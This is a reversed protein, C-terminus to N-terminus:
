LIRHKLMKFGMAVSWVSAALYALAEPIAVGRWEFMWVATSFVGLLVTLLGSKMESAELLLAVGYILLYISLLTFFIVSVYFHLEGATEPFVGIASLAFGDLLVILMGVRSLRGRLVAGLGTSFVATLFGGVILGMNFLVAVDGHVGLDSLANGTWSFWSSSYFVALLVLTSVVFPGTVGCLGAVRLWRGGGM